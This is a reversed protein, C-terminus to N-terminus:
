PQSQIWHASFFEDLGSVLQTAVQERAATVAEASGVIISSKHEICVVSTRSLVSGILCTPHGAPTTNGQSTGGTDDRVSLGLHPALIRALRDSGKAVGPDVVTIMAPNSVPCRAANSPPRMVGTYGTDDYHLRVMVQCTNGLDARARLSKYEGASSKTMRVEYGAAELRAKEVLALQWMADIEGPCGGNDGVNLGTAADIESGERGSHGPDLCIVAKVPIRFYMPREAVVPLSSQVFMAVDQGPGVENALDVTFRSSPAITHTRVVPDGTGLMYTLTVEAPANGPNLIAAYTRFGDRTTGEAFYWSAAMTNAGISDHGGDWQGMYNFYMPREAVVPLDSRIIASADQGTGIDDAVDLTFRSQPAVVHTRRVPSGSGLMYTVDLSAAMTGPNEVALYTKFGDRTTGEAFYWDAALRQAGLSDHGGDWRGMYNFYMPREAVVPLTSSISTSVDKGPGVDASVDITYRSKAPVPHTRQVPSGSGLMYTFSVRAETEGPNMVAIYTNFNERTTGEAFYWNNSLSTAGMSDHGGDWKGEYFFYMPREAVVPVTSAIFTSVDVNLGVDESIDLTSRSKAPVAHTRVVPAGSSLMYTFTVQGAVRGPNMIAIYTTFGPRTTGEAFYWQTSLGTAGLSDSGGSATAAPCIALLLAGSALLAILAATASRKSFHIL